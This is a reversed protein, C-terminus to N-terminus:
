HNRSIRESLMRHFQHVGQERRPSFRGRSYGTSGLGKQVSEVVEEDEREVRDLGAGAGKGLLGEKWVYTRFSVKTRNTEIPHVVNLSLGWPYFNLMTNPFLWYYYAAVEKGYDIHDKPLDFTLEGGEAIGLQLNGGDFLETTYSGYDLVENLSPHVYPIHFGELYNDCYLAWHANVLYDRSRNPDYTFENIPLFGVRDIVPRLFQEFSKEPYLSSFVLKDGLIGFEVPRLNDEETPFGEAEEFEPMSIFKGKLDFKKGHYRCRLARENGAQEQVLNARHTCVNSVCNVCDDFDRTLLIPEDLFGPLQIKPFVSGPTKIDEFDCTYIWSRRFITDKSQEFIERSYYYRGPLTKAKRIDPDVFFHDM